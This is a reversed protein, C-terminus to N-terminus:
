SKEFSSGGSCASFCVASDGASFQTSGVTGQGTLLDGLLAAPITASGARADFQCLV